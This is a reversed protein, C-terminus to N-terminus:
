RFDEVLNLDSGFQDMQTYLVWRGDPSVSLGPQILKPVRALLREEGGEYPRFRIDIPEGPQRLPMWYLGDKGAALGAGFALPPSVAADRGSELDLRRVLGDGGHAAYYLSRGDPSLAAYMGHDNSVPAAEGGAAPMKWIRSQGERDSAFYLWRGDASLVPYNLSGDEALLRETSRMEVDASWIESRGGTARAFVIRKEDASWSPAALPGSDFATVPFAGTGDANAVWVQEEGTRSSLFAIRSGDHSYAPERDQYTSAVLQEDEGTETNLRWINSDAQETEYVLLGAAASVAVGTVSAGPGTLPRAPGRGDAGIRWLGWQGAARGVYIIERGHPSWDLSIAEGHIPVATEEGRARGEADLPQVVLETPYTKTVGRVFAMRSGDPSLRPVLDYHVSDSDRGLREFQGSALDLRAIQLGARGHGPTASFYLGAGDRTWAANALYGFPMEMPVGAVKTEVGGAAPVVYIGSDGGGHDMRVFAIRRGDPSWAPHFDPAPHETIRIAERGSLARTYIDFGMLGDPNSSYAISKGDPSFAPHQEVGTSSTLPISSLLVQPDPVPAGTHARWWVFGAAALAALAAPAFWGFPRAAAPEPRPLADTEDSDSLSAGRSAWWADIESRYAFVMGRRDSSLRRVPLGEIQEWRQVTRVGKKLYSAIEKWSDLRDGPAPGAQLAESSREPTM